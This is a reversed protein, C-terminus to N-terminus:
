WGHLSRLVRHDAARLAGHVALGACLVDVDHCNTSMSEKAGVAVVVESAAHPLYRLLRRERVEVVAPLQDLLRPMRGRRPRPIVRSSAADGHFVVEDLVM